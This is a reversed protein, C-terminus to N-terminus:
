EIVLVIKARTGRKFMRANAYANIIEQEDGKTDMFGAPDIYEIGGRPDQYSSPIDTCSTSTNGIVPFDTTNDNTIHIKM